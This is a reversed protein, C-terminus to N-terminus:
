SHVPSEASFPWFLSSNNDYNGLLFCLYLSGVAAVRDPKLATRPSCLSVHM